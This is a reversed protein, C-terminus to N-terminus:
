DFALAVDREAEAVLGPDYDASDGPVYTVSHLRGSYRFSGHRRYLEWHVPGGRNVGVDIGSFPAMGILMAVDPLEAACVGDVTVALRTRFAPLWTAELRVAHRGPAVTGADVEHLSGSM